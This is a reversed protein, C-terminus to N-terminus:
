IIHTMHSMHTMWLGLPILSLSEIVDIVEIEKSLDFALLDTRNLGERFSTAITLALLQLLRAGFQGQSVSL